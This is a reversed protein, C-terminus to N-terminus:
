LQAAPKARRGMVWSGLVGGLGALALCMVIWSVGYADWHHASSAGSRAAPSAADIAWVGVPGVLVAHSVPRRAALVATLFGGAAFALLSAASGVLFVAFPFPV